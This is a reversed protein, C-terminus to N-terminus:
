QGPQRKLRDLVRNDWRRSLEHPIEFYDLIKGVSQNIIDDVTEPRNYFSPAPPVIHAGMDSALTLLRLHGKHLPSERFMLALRRKEKLQVDAARILLNQTYSNAIGSLTKVTCPVVAMGMTLFSGSAVAATIDDSAYTVDAMALVDKVGYGTEIRINLKGADSIILHTEIDSKKLVELLRIGYIVGSAGCIGIILRRTM